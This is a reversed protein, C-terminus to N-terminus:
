DNFIQLNIAQGMSDNWYSWYLFRHNGDVAQGCLTFRVPSGDPMTLTVEQLPPGPPIALESADFRIDYGSADDEHIFINEEQVQM